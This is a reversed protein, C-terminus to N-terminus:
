VLFVSGTIVAALLIGLECLCLFYGALDGSIGGFRKKSMVYYYTFILLATIVSAIGCGPQLIIMVAACVLAEAALIFKVSAPSQSAITKVTGEEGAKPFTVVSLGSLARSLVFGTAAVGITTWRIETWGGFALLFLVGAYIVAFAGVHPDKLIRRREEPSKWSSLADVTDLYGDIHIGGTLLVPLVTLVAATLITGLPLVETFLWFSFIELAGLVLGVLPFFCMSYRMTRDEWQIKPMPIKSYLSFAAICSRLM